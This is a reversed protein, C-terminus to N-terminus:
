KVVGLIIFKDESIINKFKLWESVNKNDENANCLYCKRCIGHAKHLKEQKYTKCVVIKTM